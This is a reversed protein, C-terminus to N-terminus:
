LCKSHLTERLYRARKVSMVFFIEDATTLSILRLSTWYRKIGGDTKESKVTQLGLMERWFAESHLLTVCFYIQSFSSNGRVSLLMSELVLYAVYQVLM